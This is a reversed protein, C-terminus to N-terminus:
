GSPWPAPPRGAARQGAVVVVAMLGQQGALTEVVRPGQQVAAMVVQQGAAGGVKLGVVPGQRGAAAMVVAVAVQHGATVEPNVVPGQQVAMLGVVAVVAMMLVGQQVAGGM